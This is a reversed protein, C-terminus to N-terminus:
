CRTRGSYRAEVVVAGRSRGDHRVISIIIRISKRPVHQAEPLEPRHSGKHFIRNVQHTCLNASGSWFTRAVRMSREPKEVADEEISSIGKADMVFLRRNLAVSASVAVYFGTAAGVCLL